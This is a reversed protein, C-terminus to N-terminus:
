IVLKMQGKFHFYSKISFKVVHKKGSIALCPIHVSLITKYSVGKSSFQAWIKLLKLFFLSSISTKKQFNLFRSLLTRTHVSFFWSTEKLVMIFTVLLIYITVEKKYMHWKVWPWRLDASNHVSLGYWFSNKREM